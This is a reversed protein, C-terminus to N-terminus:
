EIPPEEASDDNPPAANESDQDSTDEAAPAPPKAGKHSKAWKEEQQQFKFRIDDHAYTVRKNESPAPSASPGLYWGGFLTLVITTIAITIATDRDM